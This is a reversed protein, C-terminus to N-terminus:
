TNNRQEIWATIDDIILNHITENSTKCAKALKKVLANYTLVGNNFDEMAETAKWYNKNETTGHNEGPFYKGRIEKAVKNYFDTIKTKM